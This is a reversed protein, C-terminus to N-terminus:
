RGLGVIVGLEENYVEIGNERLCNWEWILIDKLSIDVDGENVIVIENVM